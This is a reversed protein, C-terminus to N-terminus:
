YISLQNKHTKTSVRGTLVYRWIQSENKNSPFMTLWKFHVICLHSQLYETSVKDKNVNKRDLHLMVNPVQEQKFSVSNGNSMWLIYIVRNIGVYNAKTSKTSVRGTLIYRWMQSENKNSPFLNPQKFNSNHLYRKIYKIPKKHKKTLVRGTL